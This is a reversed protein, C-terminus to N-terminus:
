FREKTFAYKFATVPSLIILKTNLSNIAKLMNEELSDYERLFVEPYSVFQDLKSHIPAGCLFSDM